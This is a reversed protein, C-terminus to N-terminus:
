NYNTRKRTIEKTAALDLRKRVKAASYIKVVISTSEFCVSIM